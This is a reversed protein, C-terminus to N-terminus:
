LRLEYDGCGILDEGSGQGVRTGGGGKHCGDMFSRDQLEM